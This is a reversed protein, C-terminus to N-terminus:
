GERRHGREWEQVPGEVIRFLPHAEPTGTEGVSSLWKPNRRELKERIHSWEFALQGATAMIPVAIRATGTKTRDFRYGRAVAERYVGELYTNIAAVPRELSRFRELQPHHRYGRTRNLLVQRALLAERWLATLGAPDLYKPHLTWIRM